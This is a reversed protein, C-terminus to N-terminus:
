QLTELLQASADALSDRMVNFPSPTIEKGDVDAIIDISRSRNARNIPATGASPVARAVSSFPLKRGDPTHINSNLLTDVEGREAQAFRVFIKVEDRGRQIRQVEEGYFGQRVQRALNAYTLGAAEGAPLLEVRTEAAGAERSKRKLEELAM